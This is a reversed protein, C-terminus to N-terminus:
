KKRTVKSLCSAGAELALKSGKSLDQTFYWCSGDPKCFNGIVIVARAKANRQFAFPQKAAGPVISGTDRTLLGDGFLAKEKAWVQVLSTGAIPAADTVQVVAFELPQASAKGCNNLEATSSLTLAISKKGMGVASCGALLAVALLFSATLSTRSVLSRFM